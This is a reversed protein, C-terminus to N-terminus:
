SIYFRQILIALIYVCFCASFGVAIFGNRRFKGTTTPKSPYLLLFLLPTLPILYRGQLSTVGRAGIRTFALDMLGFVALWSAFITFAIIGRQSNTLLPRPADSKLGGTFRATWVLMAVYCAVLPRPLRTDYWGLKGVISSLFAISFLQGVYDRATSFPHHLIFVAQLHPSNGANVFDKYTYLTWAVNTALSMAIFFGFAVWYRRRGGFKRAPILLFLLSFPLYATKALAIAMGLLILAAMRRGGIPRDDGIAIRLVTAVFLFCVGNVTADASLSAALYLSMPMLALLFLTWRFIPILRLALYILLSWALLNGLRGAYILVLPTAALNRAIAMAAAQPLYNTPCYWPFVVFERDDLNLPLTRMRWLTKLDQKVEPHFPIEQSVETQLELLSRPLYGGVDDGRRTKAFHGESVQYSRFSHHYEDPVQFPPTVLAFLSGFTWAIVLFWRAPSAWGRGFAAQANHDSQPIAQTM